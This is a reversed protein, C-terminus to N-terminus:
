NNTAWLKRYLSTQRKHNEVYVEQRGQNKMSNQKDGMNKQIFM